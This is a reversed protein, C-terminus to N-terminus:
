KKERKFIGVAQGNESTFKEPRQGPDKFSRCLKLTDGDLEYIYKVLETKGDKEQALDLAKPKRTPDIAKVTLETKQDGNVIVCKDGEILLGFQDVLEKPAPQGGKELSVAKWHGTISKLEKKAEDTPDAAVVVGATLVGILVPLYRAHM